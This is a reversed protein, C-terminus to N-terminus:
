GYYPWMVLLVFITIKMKGTESDDTAASSARHLLCQAFLWHHCRHLECCECSLSKDYTNTVPHCELEWYSEKKAWVSPMGHGITMLLFPLFAKSLSHFIIWLEQFFSVNSTLTGSYENRKLYLHVTSKLRLHYRIPWVGTTKINGEKTFSEVTPIWFNM